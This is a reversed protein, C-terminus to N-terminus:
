IADSGSEFVARLPVLNGQQVPVLSPQRQLDERPEDENTEILGGAAKPRSTWKCVLPQAPNGTEIWVCSLPAVRRLPFTVTIRTM